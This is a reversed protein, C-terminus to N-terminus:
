HSSPDWAQVRLVGAAAPGGIGLPAQAIAAIATVTAAALFGTLAKPASDPLAYLLGFFLLPELILARLERASLLPYETVLLSLLAALLFLALPLDYATTRPWRAGLRRHRVLVAAWTVILVLGPPTVGIPGVLQRSFFFFPLSAGILLPGVQPSWIVGGALLALGIALLDLRHAHATFPVVLGAAALGLASRTVGM